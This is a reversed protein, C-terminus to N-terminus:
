PTPNLTLGGQWLSLLIVLLLLVSLAVRLALSNIVRNTKGGDRILFFLGSFLSVIVALLLTVILTKLM